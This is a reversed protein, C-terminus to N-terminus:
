DEGKKDKTIDLMASFFAFFAFRGIKDPERKKVCTKRHKIICVLVYLWLGIVTYGRKRDLGNEEM